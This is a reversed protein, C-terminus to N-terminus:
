REGRGRREERWKELGGGGGGRRGGETKGGREEREERTRGSRKREGRSFRRHNFDGQAMTPVNFDLGARFPGITQPCIGNSKM